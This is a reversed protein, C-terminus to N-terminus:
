LAPLTAAAADLKLGGEVVLDPSDSLSDQILATEKLENHSAMVATAPVSALRLAATQQLTKIDREQQNIQQDQEACRKRLRSIEAWLEDQRCARYPV